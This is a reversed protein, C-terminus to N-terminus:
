PSNTVAISLRSRFYSPDPLGDVTNTYVSLTAWGSFQNTPATEVFTLINARIKKKGTANFTAENSFPSEGITGGSSGLATVSFFNTVSPIAAITYNTVNGLTVTNVYTRSKSGQYLKYGGVGTSPSRSWALTVTQPTPAALPAPAVLAKAKPSTVPVPPMPPLPPPTPAPAPSSCGALLVLCLPALGFGVALRILKKPTLNFIKCLRIVHYEATNESLKMRDGIEKNELGMGLLSLCEVQRKTLCGPNPNRFRFRHANDKTRPIRKSM